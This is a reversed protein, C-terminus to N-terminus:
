EEVHVAKWEISGSAIMKEIRDCVAPLGSESCGTLVTLFQDENWRGVYDTPRLTQELTQAIVRLM